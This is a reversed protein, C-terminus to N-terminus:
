RIRITRTYFRGTRWDKIKFEATDGAEELAARLSFYMGGVRGIPQDDVSVIVDDLELGARWAPSGVIIAVIKVGGAVPAVRVGLYPQRPWVDDQRAQGAPAVTALAALALIVALLMKGRAPAIPNM